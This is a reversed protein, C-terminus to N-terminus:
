ELRIGTSRVPRAAAQSRVWFKLESAVQAAKSGKKGFITWLSNPEQLLTNEQIVLLAWKFSNGVLTKRESAGLFWLAPFGENLSKHPLRLGKVFSM